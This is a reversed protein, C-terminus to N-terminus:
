QELIAHVVGRVTGSVVAVFLGKTFPPGDDGFAEQDDDGRDMRVVAILDGGASSGDRLEAVPTAGGGVYAYLRGVAHCDVKTLTTVLNVNLVGATANIIWGPGWNDDDTVAIGPGTATSAPSQIDLGMLTAASPTLGADTTVTAAGNVAAVGGAATVEEGDLSITGYWASNAPIALLVGATNRFGDLVNAAAPAGSTDSTDLLSWGTVRGRGSVLAAGSSTAAFPLAVRRHRHHPPSHQASAAAGGM